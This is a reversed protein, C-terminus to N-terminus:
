RGLQAAPWSARAAALRPGRHKMTREFSNNPMENRCTMQPSARTSRLELLCRRVSKREMMSHSSSTRYGVRSLTRHSGSKRKLQWGVSLLAAYVRRAKTSPWQTV